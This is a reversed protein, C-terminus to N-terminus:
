QAPTSDLATAVVPVHAPRRFNGWLVRAAIRPHLIHSPPKLLNGVRHFAVAIKPDHHAAKHLKAIYANIVKVAATRPGKAEPMRLDNGVAISWPTDIIKSARTFFRRALNTTGQALCKQLAMAELAAVSMGQGYIPNFSSLADGMVLYGQPFRRLREYHRRVSAPFRTGAADGSPEANRVVEYIYPAPLTRAFEVFGELEAPPPTGFHSILTVTWRGGEQALMVGGRKGSPTPPMIVARDGDLDEQRRKFFRTTYCLGVEVREEEPKSYGMEELWQSSRSGRGTTDVVLASEIFEDGLMVGTVRYKAPSSALATVTVNERFEVNALRRVRERVISELFPRTMLLGNLGSACRAHCGGEMFWRSERLIDGSIAGQDVCQASIGPFLKDLAERGGALLGHTHQGQPVGRRNKSTNPLEDRELVLVKDYVDALVRAALLGAMSAGIVIAREENSNRSIM